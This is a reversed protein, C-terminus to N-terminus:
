PPQAVGEGGELVRGRMRVTAYQQRAPVATTEVTGGASAGLENQTMQWVVGKSRRFAAGARERLQSFSGGIHGEGCVCAPGHKCRLWAPQALRRISFAMLVARCHM